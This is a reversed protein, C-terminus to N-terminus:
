IMKRETYVKEVNGGASKRKPSVATSIFEVLARNKPHLAAKEFESLSNAYQQSSEYGSHGTGVWASGLPIGLRKAVKDKNALRVAFAAAQGTIGQKLLKEYLEKDSKMAPDYNTDNQLAYKVGQPDGKLASKPVVPDVGFVGSIGQGEKLALAALQEPSLQPVGYPEGLKMAMVKAYLEPANLKTPLTEIGSKGGYKGTPDARYGSVNDPFSEQNVDLGKLWHSLNTQREWEKLRKKDAIEKRITELSKPPNKIPM